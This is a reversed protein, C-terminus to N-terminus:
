VKDIPVTNNTNERTLLHNRRYDATLYGSAMTHAKKIRIREKKIRGREKGKQRKFSIGGPHEM